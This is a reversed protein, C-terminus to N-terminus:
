NLGLRQIVVSYLHLLMAVVVVLGTYRHVDLLSQLGETGFLPLMSLLMTLTVVLGGALIVWFTARPLWFFRPADAGNGESGSKAAFRNVGCWTIALLPLVFVFLGAAVMHAFLMWGHMAGFRIVALLSTVGLGAVSVITALYVLKEWLSWPPREVPKGRRVVTIVLHLVILVATCILVFPL